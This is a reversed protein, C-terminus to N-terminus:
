HFYRYHDNCEVPPIICMVKQLRVTNMGFDTRGLANEDKPENTM